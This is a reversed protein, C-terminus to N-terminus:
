AHDETIEAAVTKGAAKDARAKNLLRLSRLLIELRRAVITGLVMLLFGDAIASPTIHWAGAHGSLLIRAGYKLLYIGALMLMGLASNQSTLTHTEPDITIQVMRGRFWGIAIGVAAAAALASIVLPTMPPPDYYIGAGILFVFLLPCIWMTEIRVRRQRAGGSWIRFAM